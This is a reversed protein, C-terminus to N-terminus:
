TTARGNVSCTRRRPSPVSAYVREYEYWDIPIYGAAAATPITLITCKAVSDWRASVTRNVWGDVCDVKAEVGGDSCRAFAGMFLQMGLIGFILWFLLAVLLANGLGPISRFLANVVVKLEPVRSIVRLPSLVRLTRLARVWGLNYGVLAKGVLGIIVIFGDMCNWADKLYADKDEFYLGLAVLKIMMELTFIVTFITDIIDLIDATSTNELARPSEFVMTFSSMVIFFMITFDFRKDDVLTFCLKRFANDPSFIGLAKSTYKHLPKPAAGPMLRCKSSADLMEAEDRFDLASVLHGTSEPSTTGGGGGGVVM